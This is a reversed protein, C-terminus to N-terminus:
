PNFAKCGHQFLHPQSTSPNYGQLELYLHKIVVEPAVVTFRSQDSALSISISNLDVVFPEACADVHPKTSHPIIPMLESPVDIPRRYRQARFQILVIEGRTLRPRACRARPSEPRAVRVPHVEWSM